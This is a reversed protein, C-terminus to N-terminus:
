RLSSDSPFTIIKLSQALQARFRGSEESSLCASVYGHPTMFCGISPVTIQPVLNRSSWFINFMKIEKVKIGLDPSYGSQSLKRSLHVFIDLSSNGKKALNREKEIKYRV